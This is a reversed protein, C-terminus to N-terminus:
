GRDGFERPLRRASVDGRREPRECKSGTASTHSGQAAWLLQAVDELEVPTRAFSRRSERTAIAREVSTSGDTEPESLEIPDM